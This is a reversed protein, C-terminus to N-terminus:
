NYYFIKILIDQSLEYNDSDSIKNNIIPSDTM